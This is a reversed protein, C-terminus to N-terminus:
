VCGKSKLSCGRLKCKCSKNICRLSFYTKPSVPDDQFTVCLMKKWDRSAHYEMGRKVYYRTTEDSIPKCDTRNQWHFLAAYYSIMDNKDHNKMWFQQTSDFWYFDTELKVSWGNEIRELAEERPRKFLIMCEPDALAQEFLQDNDMKCEEMKQIFLDTA